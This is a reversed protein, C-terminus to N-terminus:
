VFNNRSLTCCVCGADMTLVSRDGELLHTDVGTEGLENQIVAVLRHQAAEFEIFENLVYYSRIAYM